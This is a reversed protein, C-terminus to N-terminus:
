KLLETWSPVAGHSVYWYIRKQLVSALNIERQTHEGFYGDKNIVVIIDSHRIKDFHLKEFIERYGHVAPNLSSDAGRHSGITWVAYGAKTLELMM